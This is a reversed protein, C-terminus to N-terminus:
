LEYLELGFSKLIDIFIQIITQTKAMKTYYPNYLSNIINVRKDIFLYLESLTPFYQKFKDIHKIFDNFHKFIMNNKLFYETIYNNFYYKINEFKVQGDNNNFNNISGMSDPIELIESEDPKKSKRAEKFFSYMNSIIDDIDISLTDHKMNILYNSPMKKLVTRLIFKTIEAIFYRLKFVEADIKEKEMSESSPIFQKFFDFTINDNEIKYEEHIPNHKTPEPIDIYPTQMLKLVKQEHPIEENTFFGFSECHYAEDYYYFNFLCKFLKELFNFYRFYKNQLETNLSEQLEDDVLKKPLLSYDLLKKIFLYYLEQIPQSVNLLQLRDYLYKYLDLYFKENELSIIKEKLKEFKPFVFGNKKMFESFRKNLYSFTFHEKFLMEMLLNFAKQDFIDGLELENQYILKENTHDYKVKRSYLIPMDKFYPKNEMLKEYTEEIVNKNKSFVYNLKFFSEIKNADESEFLDKNKDIDLFTKVYKFFDSILSTTTEIFDTEFFNVLPRKIYEPLTNLFEQFIKLADLKFTKNSLINTPAYRELYLKENNCYLIYNMKNLINHFLSLIKLDSKDIIKMLDGDFYSVSHYNLRVFFSYILKAIMVKTNENFVQSSLYPEIVERIKDFKFLHKFKEDFFFRLLIVLPPVEFFELSKMYAKFDENITESNLFFLLEKFNFKEYDKLCNIDAKIFYNHLLVRFGPNIVYFYLTLVENIDVRKWIYNAYNFRDREINNYNDDYYEEEKLKPNDNMITTIVYIMFDQIGKKMAYVLKSHFENEKKKFLEYNKPNGDISENIALIFNYLQSSYNLTEFEKQPILFKIVYDKIQDRIRIKEYHYSKLVNLYVLVRSKIDKDQIDETKIEIGLLELIACIYITLVDNKIFFINSNDLIIKSVNIIDRIHIIKKNSKLYKIIEIISDYNLELNKIIKSISEEIKRIHVDINSFKIHTLLNKLNGEILKGDHNILNLKDIEDKEFLYLKTDKEEIVNYLKVNMYDTLDKLKGTKKLNSNIIKDLAYDDKIEKLIYPFKREDSIVRLNKKESPEGWVDGGYQLLIPKALYTDVKKDLIGTVDGKSLENYDYSKQYLDKTRQLYKKLIAKYWVLKDSDLQFNNEYLVLENFNENISIGEKELENFKAVLPTYAELLEPKENKIQKTFIDNNTIIYSVDPIHVGNRLKELFDELHIINKELYSLTDKNIEEQETKKWLEFYNKFDTYFMAVRETYANLIKHFGADIKERMNNEDHLIKSFNYVFILEDEHDNIDEDFTMVLRRFADNEVGLETKISTVFDEFSKNEHKESEDPLLIKLSNPIESLSDSTLYQLEDSIIERKVESEELKEKFKNIESTLEVLKQKKLDYKATNEGDSINEFLKERVNIDLSIDEIKDQLIEIKKKLDNEEFKLEDLTLISEKMINEISKYIDSVKDSNVIFIETNGKSVKYQKIIDYKLLLFKKHLENIIDMKESIKDLEESTTNFDSRFKIIEKKNYEIKEKLDEIEKNLVKEKEAKDPTDSQIEGLKAESIKLDESLKKDDEVLKDFKEIIKKKENNLRIREIRLEVDMENYLEKIMHDVKGVVHKRVEQVNHEVIAEVKNFYNTLLSDYEEDLSKAILRRSAKYEEKYKKKDETYIETLVKTYEQEDIKTLDKVFRLAYRYSYRFEELMKMKKKGLSKRFNGYFKKVCFKKTDDKYKNLKELFLDEIIVYKEDTKEEIESLESEIEKKYTEMNKQNEKNKIKDKLKDFNQNCEQIAEDKVEEFDPYVTGELEFIIDDMKRNLDTIFKYASKIHTNYVEEIKRKLYSKAHNYYFSDPERTAIAEKLYAPANDDIGSGERSKAFELDAKYDEEYERDFTEDQLVEATEEEEELKQIKAEEEKDKKDRLEEEEREAKEKQDKIDKLKKKREEELELEMKKRLEEKRKIKKILEEKEEEDEAEDETEEHAVSESLRRAVPKELTSLVPIVSESGKKIVFLNILENLFKDLTDIKSSKKHKSILDRVESYGSFYNRIMWSTNYCLIISYKVSLFDYTSEFNAYIDHLWPTLQYLNRHNMPVLMHTIFNNTYFIKLFDRYIVEITYLLDNNEIFLRNDYTSSTPYSPMLNIDIKELFFKLCAGIVRPSLDIQAINVIDTLFRILDSESYNLIFNKSFLHHFLKLDLVKLDNLRLFNKISKEIKKLSLKDKATPIYKINKIINKFSGDGIYNNDTLFFFDNLLKNLSFNDASYVYDEFNYGIFFLYKKLSNYVNIYLHKFLFILDEKPVNNITYYKEKSEKFLIHLAKLFGNYDNVKVDHINNRPEVKTSNKYFLTYGKEINNFIIEKEKYEILEKLKYNIGKNYFHIVINKQKEASTLEVEKPLEFKNKKEEEKEEEKEKKREEDEEEEYIEKKPIGIGTEEDVELQEEPEEEPEKETKKEEPEEKETKKEEPEEKEPKKEETEKLEEKPEKSKEEDGPLKSEDLVDKSPKEPHVLPKEGQEEPKLPTELQEADPEDSVLSGSEDYIELKRKSNADIDNHLHYIKNKYKYILYPPIVVVVDNLINPVFEPIANSEKLFTIIKEFNLTNEGKSFFALTHFLVTFLIIKM